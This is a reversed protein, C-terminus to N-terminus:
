RPVVISHYQNSPGDRFSSFVLECTGGHDYLAPEGDFTPTNVAALPYPQQFGGDAASEAYWIDDSGAGGPRDTVVFMGGAVPVPSADSVPSNLEPLLTGPGFDVDIAPRRSVYIDRDDLAGRPYYVTLGDATLRADIDGSPTSLDTASWSWNGGSLTGLWFDDGGLTGAYPASIVAIGLHALPDFGFIGNPADNVDPGLLQVTDFPEALSPRTAVWVQFAGSQDSTFYLSLGDESFVSDYENRDGNVPFAAMLLANVELVEPTTLTWTGFPMGCLAPGTGINPADLSADVLPDFHIKGCALAPLFWIARMQAIM